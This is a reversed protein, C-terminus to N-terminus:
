TSESAPKSRRKNRENLIKRVWNPILVVGVLLYSYYTLIRWISSIVLAYTETNVYDALFGGFLIEVFGAGGPTPSFAIIVFMTELRAYLAFQEFFSTDMGEIFAIILFNLLLFRCSWATATSLFAGIHFKWNQRKMEQSALIMDNGLQVAGRRFRKLFRLKTFGVLIRKMQTPNVFLGYYFLAGYTAMLIYAGLFTYGWGDFDALREMNPRIMNTGFIMFLFPLTGIFFATDLVITYLVITATKATSLREQALIFFAVASGGVSTPSVASSFEWIFILEICKKWSFAKNSLIRLRTAYALHRFVLLAIAALIWFLMHQTWSIKAFEEPDFQRILLYIVVGIGILVPLIIRSMRISKLVEQQEESFTERIIEEQNM